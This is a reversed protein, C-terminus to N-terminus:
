PRDSYANHATTALTACLLGWIVCLPLSEAYAHWICRSFAVAAIAAFIYLVTGQYKNM